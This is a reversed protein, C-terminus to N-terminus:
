QAVYRFVVDVFYNTANWSNTPFGGGYVYRGNNASPATLPGQTWGGNFFGSSASYHGNPALYSVVYTQGATVPVPTALTATQWGSASENAFTVTGLRTGSSSWISGTHTGTNGPGKYFRVATVAGDVSPTFATGVEVAAWDDVAATVPTQTPFLSVFSSASAETDFSWTQTDLTAGRVSVVGSVAVTLSAGNPLNSTPTFTITKSDSSLAANGSVVTSGQKVSMSWGNAIPASFTISPKATTLVNTSGPAPTQGTVNIVPSDATYVVDVFYNASNWSFEPFGGGGYLFVGNDGAPATLDGATQATSFYNTTYSYHGQPALYSVVYTTGATVAVPTALTATQWGSASEGAFTVRGLLTGTSSWLSGVHTGGNGAGKFFRIASVKGDSAPVFKTGLEVSAGDDASATVPVVSGFMSQPEGVDDSNVTRFQWTQTPLTAGGVSKVGSLTVTVLTDKALSQSPKLKLRLGDGSLTTTGAVAAGGQTATLSYGSALAATFSVNISAGRAVDVAGPAPDQEAIAISPAPPTFVPDVMYNSSSRFAPFADPYSYSGSDSTVRLPSRSLDGAVFAGPTLSYSGTPSRYAAIYETDKAIPVPSSFTLTQWGSSSEGTFTGSALLTGSANYLAGVHTGTNGPAKYFRIGTIQGAQSSAFRVGLTVPTTEGSDMVTPLTTDDFLTCPCVGPVSPPKATTFSWTKGSGIPNGQLDRGALLVTYKVFAALPANPVFSITRTSTDYTTSGAVATGTSDTVTISQSGAQLAKSYRASVTTNSPVSTSDPLPWQNTAILDSTDTTTFAVDVFYNSNGFTLNPYSGPAAYVGAAPAGFGGEIQLPSADIPGTSFGDEQVAYHGNPATYSVVYTTGATVAVPSAFAASQWGTASENAFTVTALRQGSMTWLSGVHTGGNGTGKYFRVGTVFGNATPTFRLGLEVASNDNAAPTSPVAPGFINCPCSVAFNRSVVAGKNASDDMARVQVPTSGLGHQVYTYSWSTTGTAAHWSSGGDLSVEVGAVVGGGTDSATGSVTVNSGNAQASGAAPSTITATPGTTDTSKTAAVLGSELTIPQAGFDALLNVQAQQMRKDAPEPDFASDHTADLGWTWQITGAGFVLAGSPAKYLTMSHTTTGPAVTNGFDTLREPTPGTTTTLRVLGPPRVGNDVDEDSEYGVTHPALTAMQGAALTAVTTNRWLRNKGQAATVTMALDDHNAMFMTGTLANEPRNAGQSKPAYRPDRWTGTWENAPDIKAYSWTEKYSVLTRYPTHGADASPEYRVRWYVENGSLFMLNVGADRAAEVNARQAGSWYEDHGVSLFTKHNTLLNGRRDTDVGAIYSIDYGNRELFRVLPYENSFFFDRGGIGDRTLVPRNYSIKYARGNAAGQYFDSGGYTNYAQWTTDSTQFVLDSHSSDDRVIFTIHSSDGSSPVSLKAIYVGSVATSPVNWTASVAWNGCDYLETSVDTICQPQHQPLSASPTVTAIQRAGLGQYYGLRYITINYNSANTDIKFSIPSGVNVSIDTAFGQIGADGSGDVDWISPDTGPKSNECAIKNGQAGCPDVAAAQAAVTPVVLASGALALVVAAVRNRTRRALSVGLM